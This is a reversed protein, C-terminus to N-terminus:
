SNFPTPRFAAARRLKRLQFWQAVRVGILLTLLGPILLLLIWTNAEDYSSHTRNALNVMFDTCYWFAQNILRDAWPLLSHM